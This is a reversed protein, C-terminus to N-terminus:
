AIPWSSIPLHLDCDFMGLISDWLRRTLKGAGLEPEIPISYDKDHYLIGDVPSVVAATGSGFAEIMQPGFFGLCILSLSIM